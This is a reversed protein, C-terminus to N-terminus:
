REVKVRESKEAYAEALSNLYKAIQEAHAIIWDEERRGAKCPCGMVYAAGGVEFGSCAYPLSIYRDPSAASSDFLGELEGPEWSYGDNVADFCVRGCACEKVPGACHDSFAEEFRGSPPHTSYIPLLAKGKKTQTDRTM